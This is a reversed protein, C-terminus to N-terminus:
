LRKKISLEKSVLLPGERASGDGPSAQKLNGM